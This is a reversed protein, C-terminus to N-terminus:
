QKILKVTKKDIGNSFQVMYYGVELHSIDLKQSAGTEVRLVEEGLLNYISIDSVAASSYINLQSNAPNPYVLFDATSLEGVSLPNSYFEVDDVYYGNATDAAFFDVGGWVTIDPANIPAAATETGNVTISYIGADFNVTAIVEFWEDSPFAFSTMGAANDDAGMGPTGNAANFTVNGSLFELNANANPSVNGQLNFYASNNAPIYMMWKVSWAGSSVGDGLNLVADQPGGNPAAGAAIFVSKTGSNAYASSVMANQAGDDNGDWTTWIDNFVPGEDYSEIDDTFQAGCMFSFGLAALALSYIKKMNITYKTKLYPYNVKKLTECFLYEQITIKTRVESLKM